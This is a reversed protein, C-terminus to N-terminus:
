ITIASELGLNVVVVYINERSDHEDYATTLLYASTFLLYLYMLIIEM